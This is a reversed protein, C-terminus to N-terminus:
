ECPRPSVLARAFVIPNHKESLIQKAEDDQQYNRYTPLPLDTGFADLSVKL